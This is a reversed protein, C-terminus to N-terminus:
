FILGGTEIYTPDNWTLGIDARYLSRNDLVVFQHAFEAERIIRAAGSSILAVRARPPIQVVWPQLSRAIGGPREVWELKELLGDLQNASNEVSRHRVIVPVMHDEIVRFLDAITEFPFDLSQWRERLLGLIRHSDLEDGELQYIDRFYEEIAELSLPDDHRRLISRMAAARKAIEPPPERGETEAPEFVFVDGEPAKGERNCRGAAQVVSELGAAARWVTPFDIDVGAEVLSTAILRVPAGSKLRTRVWRLTEQRHRACMLTSLHCAGESDKITEYLERAHRRTNVICLVQVSDRLRGALTADDISECPHVRVRKKLVSYLRGPDPAIEREQLGEFGDPFGCAASLAPQTATCLVISARWNHALEDLAAVCPRLLPMPLTQAEDLIVVSNIINHLKRCRSPRNAFLSEFLQVATTVIIPADWNEMALRLKDAGERGETRNEDFASHHEVVFDVSGGGTLVDRFVSATQEVISTFPIVYIIRSLRHRM